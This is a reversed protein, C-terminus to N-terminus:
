EPLSLPGDTGPYPCTFSRLPTDPYQQLRLDPALDWVYIGQYPLQDAQPATTISHCHYTAAWEEDPNFSFGLNVLRVGHLTYVEVGEANILHLTTKDWATMLGPDGNEFVLSGAARFRQLPGGEIHLTLCKIRALEKGDKSLVIQSKGKESVPEPIPQAQLPTSLVPPLLAGLGLGTLLTRRNILM